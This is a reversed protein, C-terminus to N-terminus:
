KDEEGLCKVAHPDDGGGEQFVDEAAIVYSGSSDRQNRFEDESLLEPM